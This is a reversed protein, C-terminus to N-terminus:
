AEPWVEDLVKMGTVATPWGSYHALHTLMATMKERPIGLNKAGTFHVRMQAERGLASLITCTILSREEIALEEGQWVDGFLHDITYRGFDGDFPMDESKQNFLKGLVIDAKENKHGM